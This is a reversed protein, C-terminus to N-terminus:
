WKKEQLIKRRDKARLTKDDDEFLRETESVFIQFKGITFCQRNVSLGYNLCDACNASTVFLLQERNPTTNCIYGFSKAIYTNLARLCFVSFSISLTWTHM